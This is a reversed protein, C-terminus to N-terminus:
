RPTSRAMDVVCSRLNILHGLVLLAGSALVLRLGWLPTQHLETFVSLWLGGAGCALLLPALRRRAYLVGWAAMLVALVISVVALVLETWYLLAGWQAHFSRSIRLAPQSAFLLTLGLCHAACLTSAGIGLADFAKRFRDPIM